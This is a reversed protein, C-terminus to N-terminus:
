VIRLPKSMSLKVYASKVSGQGVKGYVGEIVEKINDFVKKPDMDESGVVCHVTPLFKGKSKLSVKKKLEENIIRLNVSGVLPKPMKGRSGLYQGLKKAITPMLNGQAVLDYALLAGLRKQDSAIQDIESGPIVDMGAKQAEEVLAKDDAFVAVKRTKGKDNPLLIELNLRNDQKTFDIGKFNIAIEVSQKFKRKGENDEIFKAFNEYDLAMYVGEQLICDM